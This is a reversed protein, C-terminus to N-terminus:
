ETAAQEAAETDKGLEDMMEKVGGMATGAL